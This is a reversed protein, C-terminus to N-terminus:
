VKERKAKNKVLPLSWDRTHRLAQLRKGGTAFGVAVFLAVGNFLDTAWDQGGALQLGRVGTALLLIALITGWVNFRGPKLQTSGLFAAAFAPLLYPPGETATATGLQATLIAGALAAFGASMVLTAVKIRDVRVGNLRAAEPGFGVATVRRGPPTHELLYWCLVALVLVFLAITPIGIFQGGVLNQYSTPISSIFLDHTFLEIAATLVSSMALTAIFSDIGVVTVMVGNLLGVLVGVALAIAIAESTAMGTSTLKATIVAALGLTTGISLDYVGAALPFVLGIALVGTVAQQNLISNVTQSTLFTSPVWIAFILIFVGWVLLGTFRGLGQRAMQRMVGTALGGRQSAAEATTPTAPSHPETM